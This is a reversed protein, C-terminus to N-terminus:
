DLLQVFVESVDAGPFIWGLHIKCRTNKGFHTDLHYRPRLKLYPFTANLMESKVLILEKTTHLYHYTVDARQTTVQITHSSLHNLMAVKRLGSNIKVLQYEDLVEGAIHVVQITTQIVGGM